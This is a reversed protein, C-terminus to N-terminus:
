LMVFFFCHRTHICSYFYSNKTEQVTRLKYYDFLTSRVVLVITVSFSPSHQQATSISADSYYLTMQRLWGNRFLMDNLEMIRCLYVSSQHARCAAPGNYERKCQSRELFTINGRANHDKWFIINGRTTLWQTFHSDGAKEQSWCDAHAQTIQMRIM